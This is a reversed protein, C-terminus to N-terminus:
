VGESCNQICKLFLTLLHVLMTRIFLRGVVSASAPKTAPSATQDECSYEGQKMHIFLDSTIIRMFVYHQRCKLLRNQTLM